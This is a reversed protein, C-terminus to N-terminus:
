KIKMLEELDYSADSVRKNTTYNYTNKYNNNYRNNNRASKTETAPCIKGQPRDSKVEPAPCIKGLCPYIFRENFNLTRTTIFSKKRLASLANKVTSASVGLRKALYENSAFCYGDRKSLSVIESLLIKASLSLGNLGLVCYPVSLYNTNKM